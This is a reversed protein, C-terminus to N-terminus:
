KFWLSISYRVNDWFYKEVAHPTRWPFMLFSNREPFIKKWFIELRWWLSEESCTTLHFVWQVINYDDIHEGLFNWKEIRVIELKDSLKLPLPYVKKVIELIKKAWTIEEIVKYNKNANTMKCVNCNYSDATKEKYKLKTIFEELATLEDESMINKVKFCWPHIKIFEM